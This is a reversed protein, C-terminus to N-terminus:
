SARLHKRCLLSSRIGYIARYVKGTKSGWSASSTHIEYRVDDSCIRALIFGVITIAVLLNALTFQGRPREGNSEQPENTLITSHYRQEADFRRLVRLQWYAYLGFALGAVLAAPAGGLPGLHSQMGKPVGFCLNSAGLLFVVIGALLYLWSFFIAADRSRGYLLGRGIFVFIVSFIDVSLRRFVVLGLIMETIGLLGTLIFIYAIFKISRPM